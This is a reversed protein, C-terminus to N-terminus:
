ANSMLKIVKGKLEMNLYPHEKSRSVISSKEFIYHLDPDFVTFDVPQGEAVCVPEIGFLDRPNNSLANIAKEISLEEPLAALVTEIGSAGFAAQDFELQKSERDWPNHASQIVDITGDEIGKILAKRDKEDRYPPWVKLNSNFDTLEKVTHKLHYVSIDASIPLGEAKAKRILAVSEASSIGSFHLIPKQSGINLYRILDLDRKVTMVESLSPLGKLGLMDSFLGEHIQGHLSLYYDQPKQVVRSGISAMYQLAKLMIDPNSLGANADSFGKAGHAHLDFWETFDEGKQNKTLCAFAYLKVKSKANQYAYYSLSEKNQIPPYTSSFGIVHAFGGNEAAARLSDNSEMHEHGPDKFYTGCDVWSPSIHLNSSSIIEAERDEINEGIELVYDKDLLIDKRENHFTSKLDLILVNKLLIKM